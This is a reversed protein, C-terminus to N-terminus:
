SGRPAGALAVASSSELARLSMTQELGDLYRLVALLAVDLIVDISPGFGLDLFQFPQVLLLDILVALEFLRYAHSRSSRLAIMGRILAAGGVLGAIVQILATLTAGQTFEGLGALADANGIAAAAVVVAAAGLTIVFVLGELVFLAIIARRFWRSGAIAEYRVRAAHALRRAPTRHPSSVSATRFRQRLMAVLPESPDAKELLALARTRDGRGLGGVPLREAIELANVLSEAPTLERYSRIQRVAFFLLVFLVYVLAATPKFFYDNDSTVFKGLEDIFSGFGAGGVLAAVHQTGSSLFGLLLVIAVLMGLGGWLVHAIHLGEGGLRPYGTAELFVRILLVTSVASIFFTDLLEPEASRVPARAQLFKM